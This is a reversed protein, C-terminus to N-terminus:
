PAVLGLDVEVFTTYGKPIVGLKVVLKNTNVIDQNPNIYVNLASIQAGMNATIAQKIKEELHTIVDTALTGDENVEVENELEDTYVAAAILSAKDIVRGYALLRYDDTSAMHDIGFFFGAKGPHTMFSIFGADHLAVLNAVDKLLSTGIYVTNISLPGNAVKGVKIEAGYKVARGLALGVSASGDNLSGGLVIGSFGNSSASPTLTNGAGPNQVRGEILMRVPALEVVRAQGFVLSNTIATAVDSDIFAAGGNYGGVPHRFVGLLRVKGGAAALLKKAGSANTDDLMQALTMTNPVIMIHLEQNGGLEGYFEALHRHMDPEAGVTFGQTEADDLNNVVYHNGLLGGTTGTGVLAAVGDLNAIDQLLNGNGYVITVKPLAM